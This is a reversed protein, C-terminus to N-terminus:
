SPKPLVKRAVARLVSRIRENRVLQRYLRIPWGLKQWYIKDFVAEVSANRMVEPPHKLPFDIQEVPLFSFVRDLGTYNTADARFGLNAVLNRHPSISLGNQRLVTYQWQHDWTGGGAYVMDWEYQMIKRFRPSLAMGDILGSSKIRPWSEMRFEYYQWARRWTAWGWIPAFANFAYSHGGYRDEAAGWNTGAIQMVREDDRYRQLLEDCMLLFSTAPLCDDEIIILEEVQSLAWSIASSVARGCGLNQPEAKLHVETAWELSEALKRVEGCLITDDPRGARPGDISVFVPRPGAQGVAGSVRRFLDPRNFALFLVAAPKTKPQDVPSM